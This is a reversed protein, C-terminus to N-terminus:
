RDRLFDIYGRVSELLPFWHRKGDHRPEPIIGDKWLQSIRRDTIGLVMALEDMTVERLGLTKTLTDLPDELYESLDINAFIKNLEEDTM